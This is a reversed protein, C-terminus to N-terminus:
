EENRRVIAPVFWLGALFAAALPGVIVPAAGGVVVDSLLILIGVFGLALFSMGAIALTNALRVLFRKQGRHFLIRHHVPPALLLFASTAVILLTVYYDTREFSDVHDWRANFPVVLLFAFMVQIGTGAIRLENLLEITNRDLREAPTEDRDEEDKSSRDTV